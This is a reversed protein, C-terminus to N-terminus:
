IVKSALRLLDQSEGGLLYMFQRAFMLTICFAIFPHLVIGLYVKGLNSRVEDLSIKENAGGGGLAQANLPASLQRVVGTFTPYCQFSVPLAPVKPLQYSAPKVYAPDTVIYVLPFLFYFSLAIAIFFAGIGRTFHLSRLMLGLPLFVALMNNKLYTAFVAIANTAVLINTTVDVIIRYSEIKNYLDSFYGGQIVPFGLVSFYFSQLMLPMGASNIAQLRLEEFNLAQQHMRCQLLDFADGILQVPVDRGGCPLKVQAANPDLEVQTPDTGFFYQIAFKDIESVVLVVFLIMLLTAAAQLIEGYSYRELEHMAFARGVGVLLGHIVMAIFTALISLMYWPQGADFSKLYGPLVLLDGVM